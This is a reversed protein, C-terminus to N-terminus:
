RLARAREESLQSEVAAIFDEARAETGQVHLRHGELDWEGLVTAHERDNQRELTFYRPKGLTRTFLRTQEAQWAATFFAEGDCWPQPMTILAVRADGRPLMRVELEPPVGRAGAAQACKDWVMELLLRGDREIREYFRKPDAFYLRPLARHAFHYAISRSDMRGGPLHASAALCVAHGPGTGLRHVLARHRMHYMARAPAAWRYWADDQRLRGGM